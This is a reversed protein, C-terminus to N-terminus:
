AMSRGYCSACNPYLRTCSRDIIRSEVLGLIGNEMQDSVGDCGSEEGTAHIEFGGAIDQPVRVHAGSREVMIGISVSIRNRNEKKAPEKPVSNRPM